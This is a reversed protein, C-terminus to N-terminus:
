GSTFASEIDQVARDWSQAKPTASSDHILDPLALYDDKVHLVAALIRIPASSNFLAVCRHNGDILICEGRSTECLPLGWARPHIGESFEREVSDIFHRGGVSPADNRGAAEAVTLRRATRDRWESLNGVQDLYWVTSIQGLSERSTIARVSVRAGATLKEWGVWARVEHSFLDRYESAKM